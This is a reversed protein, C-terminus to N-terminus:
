LEGYKKVLELHELSVDRNVIYPNEIINKTLMDKDYKYGVKELEDILKTEKVVSKRTNIKLGKKYAEYKEKLFEDFFEKSVKAVKAFPIYFYDKVEVAFSDSFTYNLTLLDWPLININERIFDDTIYEHCDEDLIQSLNVLHIHKKIFETNRLHSYMMFTSFSFGVGSEILEDIPDEYKEVIFKTTQTNPIEKIELAVMDPIDLTYHEKVLKVPLLKLIDVPLRIDKIQLLNVVEQPTLENTLLASLLDREM